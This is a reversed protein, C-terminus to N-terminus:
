VYRFVIDPTPPAKHSESIASAEKQYQQIKEDSLTKVVEKLAHRYHHLHNGPGTMGETDRLNAMHADIADKKDQSLLEEWRIARTPPGSALRM